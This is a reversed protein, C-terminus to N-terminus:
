GCSGIWSMGGADSGGCTFKIKSADVAVGVKALSDVVKQKFERLTEYDKMKCPDAGVLVESIDYDDGAQEATLFHKTKKEIWEAIDWFDEENEADHPKWGAAKVLDIFDSYSIVAGLLMFSSSSSNSVFDTRIKM